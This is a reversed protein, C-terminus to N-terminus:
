EEENVDFYKVIKAPSGAVFCNDPVDKTVVSNAGIVVNNGIKVPGSVVAGAYIKVNDGVIPMIQGDKEKRSSGLTVNQFIECNKGIKVNWGVVIGLTHNILLGGGITANPSIECSFNIRAINTLFEPLFKIKKRYLFNAWRYLLVSYFGNGTFFGQVLSKFKLKYVKYDQKIM